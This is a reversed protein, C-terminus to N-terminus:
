LLEMQAEYLQTCRQRLEDASRQGHLQHEQRWQARRLIEDTSRSQGSGFSITGLRLYTKFGWTWDACDDKCYEDILDKALFGLFNEAGEGDVEFSESEEYDCVLAGNSLAKLQRGCSEHFMEMGVDRLGTASTIGTAEYWSEGVFIRGCRPCM